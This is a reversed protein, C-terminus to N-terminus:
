LNAITGTGLAQVFLCKRVINMYQMYLYVASSTCDSMQTKGSLRRCGCFTNRKVLITNRCM